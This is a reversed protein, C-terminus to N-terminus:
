RKAEGRGGGTVVGWQRSMATPMVSVCVCVCQGSVLEPTNRGMASVM